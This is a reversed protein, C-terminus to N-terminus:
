LVAPGTSAKGKWSYRLIALFLFLGVWGHESLVDFYISHAARPKVLRPLETGRLMNNTVVPWFTVRFGGGTIPHLAAIRLSVQWLDLRGESVDGLAPCKTLVDDPQELSLRRLDIFAM